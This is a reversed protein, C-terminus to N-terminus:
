AHLYLLSCAWLDSGPRRSHGSMRGKRRHNVFWGSGTPMAHGLCLLQNACLM